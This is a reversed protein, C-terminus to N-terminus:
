VTGPAYLALALVASCVPIRTAWVIVPRLPPPVYPLGPLYSAFIWAVLCFGIGLPAGQHGASALAEALTQPLGLFWGAAAAGAHYAVWLRRRHRREAQAAEAPDVPPAWPAQPPPQNVTVHIGPAAALQEQPTLEPEPAPDHGFPKPLVYWWPRDKEPHQEQDDEDEDDQDGDAPAAAPMKPEPIVHVEVLPTPTPDEDAPPGDVIRRLRDRLTKEDDSM